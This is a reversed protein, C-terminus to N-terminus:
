KEAQQLYLLFINLLTGLLIQLCTEGGGFNSPWESLADIQEEQLLYILNRLFNGHLFENSLKHSILDYILMLYAIMGRPSIDTKSSLKSLIDNLKTEFPCNEITRFM